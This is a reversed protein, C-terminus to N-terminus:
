DRFTTGDFFKQDTGNGMHIRNAANYSGWKASSALAAGRIVAPTDTHATLSHVSLSSGQGVVLYKKTADWTQFPFLSHIAVASVTSMTETSYGYRLELHGDQKPVWNLCRLSRNQSM